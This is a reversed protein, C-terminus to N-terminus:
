LHRHGDRTRDSNSLGRRDFHKETDYFLIEKTYNIMPGLDSGDLELDAVLFDSPSCNSNQDSCRTGKRRIQRVLGVPPGILSDEMPVRPM